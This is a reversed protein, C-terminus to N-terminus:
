KIPFARHTTTGHPRYWTQSRMFQQQDTVTLVVQSIITQFSERYHLDRQETDTLVQIQAFATNAGPTFAPLTDLMIRTM